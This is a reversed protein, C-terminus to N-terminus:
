PPGLGRAVGPQERYGDHGAPALRLSPVGRRPRHRGSHDDTPREDVAQSARGPIGVDHGGARDAAGIGLLEPRQQAGRLLVTSGQYPHGWQNIMFSNDDWELGYRLNNWWIKPYTRYDIKQDPSRSVLNIGEYLLNIGFVEGIAWYPRRKPCGLCARQADDAAVARPGVDLVAASLVGAAPEREGPAAPAPTQAFAPLSMTM